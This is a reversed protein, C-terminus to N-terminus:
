VHKNEKKACRRVALFYDCVFGIGSVHKGPPTRFVSQRMEAPRTGSLPNRYCEKAVPCVESTTMCMTIDPM